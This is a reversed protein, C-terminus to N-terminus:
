MVYNFYENLFLAGDASGLVVEAAREPHPMLGVIKGTPDTIGAISLLSGNPDALNGREDSYQFLVQGEGQLKEITKEDAYYRGEGHAIPMDYNSKSLKAGLMNQPNVRLQSMQCIFRDNQNKILAGPLLHSETLIQFGNCIGMVPGGAHAFARVENMIPAHAALAGGRLYDGYSFGGPLFLADLNKLDEVHAQKYDYWKVHFGLHHSLAWALDQDCNSGPFSVMGVAKQVSSNKIAITM